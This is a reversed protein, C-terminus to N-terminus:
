SQVVVFIAVYYLLSLLSFSVIVFALLVCFCSCWRPRRPPVFSSSALLINTLAQRTTYWLSLLSEQVEISSVYNRRTITHQVNPAIKRSLFDRRTGQCLLLTTTTQALIESTNLPEVRSGLSFRQIKEIIIQLHRRPRRDSKDLSNAPAQQCNQKLMTVLCEWRTTLHLPFSLQSNHLAREVLINKLVQCQSSSTISQLHGSSSLPHPLRIAM